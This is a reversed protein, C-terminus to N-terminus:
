EKLLEDIMRLIKGIHIDFDNKGDLNKYYLYDSCMAKLEDAFEKVAQVKYKKLEDKTIVSCDDDIKRYGLNYLVIAFNECQFKFLNWDYKESYNSIATAIEEVQQEKDM